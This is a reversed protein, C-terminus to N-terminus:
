KAEINFSNQDLEQNVSFNTVTFRWEMEKNTTTTTRVPANNTYSYSLKYTKPITIGNVTQFNSFDETMKFLDSTRSASTDITAGQSAAITQTYETRLHRFTKADFYMKITLDSGSKPSYSLVHTEQDDIKRTGDYSIKAKKSDTNLLSWSNLLVGSLLGERLLEKNSFLFSGLASRVGPRIYGIKTDKGDFAFREQPYDNSNLNLGWLNKEGASLFIAKGVATAVSGKVQFQADSLIFQNKIAARKEKSGIADLHKNIVEEATLKQANATILSLAVVFITTLIFIFKKM